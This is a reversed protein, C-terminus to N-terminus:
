IGKHLVRQMPFKIFLLDKNEDELGLLADSKSQKHKEIVSSFIEVLKTIM